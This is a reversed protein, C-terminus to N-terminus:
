VQRTHGVPFSVPTVPLWLEAAEGGCAVDPERCRRSSDTHTEMVPGSLQLQVSEWVLVVLPLASM